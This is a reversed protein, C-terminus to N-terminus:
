VTVCDLQHSWVPLFGIRRRLSSQGPEWGPASVDTWTVSMPTRGDRLHVGPIFFQLLPLLVLWVLVGGRADESGSPTVGHFAGSGRSGRSGRDTM